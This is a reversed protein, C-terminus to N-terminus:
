RRLSGKLGNDGALCVRVASALRGPGDRGDMGL